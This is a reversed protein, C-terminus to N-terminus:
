SCFHCQYGGDILSSAIETLYGHVVEHKQKIYRECLSHKGDWGCHNGHTCMAFNSNWKPPRDEKGEKYWYLTFLYTYM